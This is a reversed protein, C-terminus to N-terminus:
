GLKNWSGSHYGYYGAGSGPNWNTGDALVIMGTRPKTPEVNLEPLFINEIGLFAIEINKLERFLRNMDDVVTTNCKAQIKNAYPDILNINYKIKGSKESIAAVVKETTNTAHPLKLEDWIFFENTPTLTGFVICQDSGERGDHWDESRVNLNM